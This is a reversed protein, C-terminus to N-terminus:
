ALSVAIQQYARPARIPGVIEVPESLVTLHEFTTAADAICRTAHVLDHETIGVEACYATLCKSILNDFLL